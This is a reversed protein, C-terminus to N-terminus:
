SNGFGHTGSFLAAARDSGSVRCKLDEVAEVM